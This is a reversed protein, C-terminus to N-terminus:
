KQRVPSSVAGWNARVQDLTGGDDGAALREVAEHVVHQEHENDLPTPDCVHCICQEM